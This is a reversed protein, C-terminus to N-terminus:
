STTVTWGKTILNNKATIGDYGGSTSDPAANTGHIQLTRGTSVSDSITDIDVLIKNVEAATM